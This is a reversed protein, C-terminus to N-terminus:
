NICPTRDKLLLLSRTTLKQPRNQLKETELWLLKLLFLFWLLPDSWLHAFLGSFTRCKVVCYQHMIDDCYFIVSFRINLCFLHDLFQHVVVTSAGCLHDEGLTDSLATVFASILFGVVGGTTLNQKSCYMEWCCLNLHLHLGKTRRLLQCVFVVVM